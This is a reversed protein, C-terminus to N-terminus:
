LTMGTFSPLSHTNSNTESENTKSNIVIFALIVTIYICETHKFLDLFTWKGFHWIDQIERNVIYIQLKDISFM